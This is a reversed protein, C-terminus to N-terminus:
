FKHYVNLLVTNENEYMSIYMTNKVNYILYINPMIFDSFAITIANNAIAIKYGKFSLIIIDIIDVLM